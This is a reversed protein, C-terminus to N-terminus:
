YTMVGFINLSFVPSGYAQWMTMDLWTALINQWVQSLQCNIKLKQSNESPFNLSWTRHGSIWSYSNLSGFARRPKCESSLYPSWAKVDLNHLISRRPYWAPEGVSGWVLKGRYKLIRKSYFPLIVHNAPDSTRRNHQRQHKTTVATYILPLFHWIDWTVVQKM